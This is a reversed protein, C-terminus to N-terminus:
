WVRDQFVEYQYDGSADLAYVEVAIGSSGPKAEFSLTIEDGEAISTTSFSITSGLQSSTNNYLSVNSVSGSVTARVNGLHDTLNYQYGTGIVYRGESHQIFELQSNSESVEKEYHIGGIYDWVKGSGDTKRLKTGAADYIYSVTGQPTVVSEPLNLHNYVINTIGKNKDSIMNGNADYTYDDGSTNGDEFGEQKALRNDGGISYAYSSGTDDVSTLQNGGSTYNYNLRDILYSGSLYGGSGNKLRGFRELNKINGNLDYQIGDDNGTVNFEGNNHIAKKLRNLKDYTYKYNQENDNTLDSDDVGKWFVQGINGNYQEYGAPADTYKLEMGFVDNGTLATGDNIKTLWGRINYQYDVEQAGNLDKKILEGIENYINTIISENNDITTKTTLLRDM